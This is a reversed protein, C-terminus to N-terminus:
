PAQGAAIRQYQAKLAPSLNEAYKSNLMDQAQRQMTQWEQGQATHAAQHAKAVTDTTWTSMKESSAGAYTGASGGVQALTKIDKAAPDQDQDAWKTLSPDVANFDKGQSRVLSSALKGTDSGFAQNSAASEIVEAARAVGPTGKAAMLGTLAHAQVDNGSAIATALARALEDTSQSSFKAEELKVAETFRNLAQSQAWAQVRDAGGANKSAGAFSAQRKAALAADEGDGANLFEELAQEQAKKREGEAWSKKATRRSRFGGARGVARGLRSDSGQLRAARMETNLARDKAFGKAGASMRDTLKGATMAGAKNAYGGIKGMISTSSKILFPIAVLPICLIILQIIQILTESDGGTITQANATGIFKSFFLSAGFVFMVVPYLVLLQILLDSWKKFYKETNPLLWAVFALPAAFVLCILILQRAILTVFVVIIALVVPTLIAILLGIMAAVALGGGIISNGGNTAGGIAATISSDGIFLAMASAGTINSVDIAFACIYYSINMLIAAIVLRPLMRKINYNSLGAGTAQSFVIVMFAMFLLINAIGLFTQWAKYIQGSSDTQALFRVQMLDDILGASTNLISTMYDIMPCFLWGMPGGQCNTGSEAAGSDGAGDIGGPQVTSAEDDFADDGIAAAMTQVQGNDDIYKLHQAKIQDIRSKCDDRAEPRIPRSDDQQPKQYMKKSCGLSYYLDDEYETCKDWNNSDNQPEECDKGALLNYKDEAKSVCDKFSAVNLYYIDDGTSDDNPKVNIKSKKFFNDTNECGLNSEISKQYGKCDSADYGRNNIDVKVGVNKDHEKIGQCKQILLLMANNQVGEIKKAAGATISPLLSFSLLLSFIYVSLFAGVVGRKYRHKM